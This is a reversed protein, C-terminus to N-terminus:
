HVLVTRLGKIRGKWYSSRMVDEHIVGLSTTSHVVWLEKSSIKSIIGVHNIKGRKSFFILDGTQANKKTTAKSSTYQDRSSRPLQLGVQSYVHHVLGSCDFGRSDVGGSRYPAGVYAIAAKAVKNRISSDKRAKSDIASNSIYCSVFLLCLFLQKRM